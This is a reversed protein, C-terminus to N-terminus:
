DLERAWKIRLANIEKLWDELSMNKELWEGKKMETYNTAICHPDLMQIYLDLLDGAQLLSERKSYLELPETHEGKFHLSGIYTSDPHQLLWDETYHRVEESASKQAYSLYTKVSVEYLRIREIRVSPSTKEGVYELKYYLRKM